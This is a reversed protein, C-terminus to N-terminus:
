GGRAARWGTFLLDYQDTAGVVGNAFSYYVRGGGAARSWCPHTPSPIAM